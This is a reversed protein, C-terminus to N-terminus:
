AVARRRRLALAAAGIVILLGGTPEPAPTSFNVPTLALATPALVSDALIHGQEVLDTYKWTYSRTPASGADPTYGGTSDSYTYQVVEVYFAYDSLDGSLSSLNAQYPGIATEGSQGLGSWGDADVTNRAGGNVSYYLTAVTADAASVNDVQWYLYEGRAAAALALAAAAVMWHKIKM